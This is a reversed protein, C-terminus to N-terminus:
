PRGDAGRAVPRIGRTVLALVAGGAYSVAVFVLSPLLSLAAIVAWIVAIDTVPSQAAIGLGWVYAALLVVAALAVVPLAAVWRTRRAILEGIALAPFTVLTTVCIGVLAALLVMLPGALPGGLDQDFVAAAVLLLVYLLAAEIPFVAWSAAAGVAYRAVLGLRNLIKVFRVTDAM